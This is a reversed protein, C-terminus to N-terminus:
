YVAGKQLWSSEFCIWRGNKQYVSIYLTGHWKEYMFTECPTFQPPRLGYGGSWRSDPAGLSSIIQERTQGVYANASPPVVAPTWGHWSAFAAYMVLGVLSASAVLLRRKTVRM